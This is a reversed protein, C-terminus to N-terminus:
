NEQLSKSDIITGIEIMMDARSKSESYDDLVENYCVRKLEINILKSLKDSMIDNEILFRYVMILISKDKTFIGKTLSSNIFKLLLTKM